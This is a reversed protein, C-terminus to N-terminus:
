GRRVLVLSSPRMGHIGGDRPLRATTGGRRLARPRGEDQQKQDVEEVVDIALDERGHNRRDLLAEEAAAGLRGGELGQLAPATRVEPEPGLEGEDAHERHGEHHQVHDARRDEAPQGLAVRPPREDPDADDEPAERAAGRAQGRREEPEQQRAAEDADALGCVPGHRRRDKRIEVGDFLTAPDQRPEVHRDRDAAGEAVHEAAGDRFGGDAREARTQGADMGLAPAPREEEHDRRADQEPDPREEHLVRRAAVGVARGVFRRRVDAPAVVADQQARSGPEVAREAHRRHRKRDAADGEPHGVVEDM